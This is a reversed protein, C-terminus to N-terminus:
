NEETKEEEPPNQNGRSINCLAHAPRVNFITDEGGKSVPVVHDIHLGREWNDGQCNRPAKLDIRDGCIWCFPGHILIVASDKYPISHLSRRRRNSERNQEPHDRKWQRARERYVEINEKRYFRKRARRAELCPDCFPTGYRQHAQWGAHTGCPEPYTPKRGM